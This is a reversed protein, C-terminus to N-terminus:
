LRAYEVSGLIEEKLESKINELIVLDVKKNFLDQLFFKLDMYNDFNKKGAAFKVLIDIDSNETQNNKSFSGFLGIEKVGFKLLENENKKIKLIIEDKTM